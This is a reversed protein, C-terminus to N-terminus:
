GNITRGAAELLYTLSTRGKRRVLNAQQDAVSPPKPPRNYNIRPGSSANPASPPTPATHQPKPSAAHQARLGSVDIKNGVVGSVGGSTVHMVPKPVNPATAPPPTIKGQGFRAIAAHHQVSGVGHMRAANDALDPQHIGLRASQEEQSTAVGDHHAVVKEHAEGVTRYRGLLHTNGGPLGIHAEYRGHLDPSNTKLVHGIPTQVGLRLASERQGATGHPTAHILYGNVGKNPIKTRRSVSRRAELAATRSADSWMLAVLEDSPVGEASLRLVRELPTEM